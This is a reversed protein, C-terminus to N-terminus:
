ICPDLSPINGQRATAIANTIRTTQFSSKIM